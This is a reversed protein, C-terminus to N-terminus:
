GGYSGRGAFSASELPQDVPETPAAYPEVRTFPSNRLNISSLILLELDKLYMNNLPVFCNDSYEIAQIERLIEADSLPSTQTVGAFWNRHAKAVSLLDRVMFAVLEDDSYLTDQQEGSSRVKKDSIIVRLHDIEARVSILHSAGKAGQAAM